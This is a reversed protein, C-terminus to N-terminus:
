ADAGIDLPTQLFDRFRQGAAPGKDKGAPKLRAQRQEDISVGLLGVLAPQLFARSKDSFWWSFSTAILFEHRKAARLNHMPDRLPEHRLKAGRHVNM